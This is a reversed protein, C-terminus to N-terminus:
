SDDRVFVVTVVGRAGGDRDLVVSRRVADPGRGGVSVTM